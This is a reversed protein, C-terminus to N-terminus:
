TPYIAPPLKQFGPKAFLYGQYLDIGEHKCWWYEEVVEVGEAVIDIGLDQCTRIIGRIIAQRPGNIHIDRILTMDLKIDDPQFEALMNLGSYGAGFDDISFKVGLTRYKSIRKSFVRYDKIMETETIELTLKDPSMGCAYASSITSDIVDDSMEFGAPMLNLNLNCEIGLAKALPIAKDRLMADFSHMKEPSVGKFVSWASENNEGRVLAEFAHIIGLEVNVIPQFAFSFQPLDNEM